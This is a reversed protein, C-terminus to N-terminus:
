AACRSLQLHAQPNSLQGILIPYGQNQFVILACLELLVAQPNYQISMSRGCVCGSTRSGQWSTPEVKCGRRLLVWLTLHAAVCCSILLISRCHWYGITVPARACFCKPALEVCCTETFCRYEDQLRLRLDQFEAMLDKLKKTLAATIAARSRASASGAESGQLLVTM